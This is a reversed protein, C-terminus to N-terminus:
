RQCADFAAIRQFRIHQFRSEGDNPPFGPNSVLGVQVTAPMDSRIFRIPGSAGVGLTPNALGNGQAQTEATQSEEAWESAGPLRKFLRFENGVRCIRLDAEVIRDPMPTLLLTSHSAFGALRHIHFGGADPVTNKAETGYFTAQQGFNYMLWRMKGRESAADRVILGASNFSATPRRAPDATLVSRARTEVMFDGTIVRYFLPGSRDSYWGAREAVGRVRLWGDEVVATTRLSPDLERLGGFGDRVFGFDVSSASLDAAASEQTPQLQQAPPVVHTMGILRGQPTFRLFFILAAAVVVFVALVTWRVMRHKPRADYAASAVTM